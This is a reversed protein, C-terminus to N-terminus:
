SSKSKSLEDVALKGSEVSKSLPVTHVPRKRVVSKRKQPRIVTVPVSSKHVLYTSISGMLLGKVTGRGRSGCIVMSLPLEDILNSLVDKVRGCIAYTILKVDFLLMQAMVSKAENTVTESAKKLEKSLSLGAEKVADPNDDRNVITVVYLTDGDRMVTGLTWEICHFSEDSFDCAVLYSRPRRKSRLGENLVGKPGAGYKNTVIISDPKKEIVPHNSFCLIKRREDSPLARPTNETKMESQNNDNKKNDCFIHKNAETIRELEDDTEDEETDEKITVYKDGLPSIDLNGLATTTTTETTPEATSVINLPTTKPSDEIIIPREDDSLSDIGPSARVSLLNPERSEVIVAPPVEKDHPDISNLDDVELELEPSLMPEETTLPHEAVIHDNLAVIPTPGVCQSM